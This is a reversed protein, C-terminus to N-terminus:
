RTNTAGVWFVITSVLQVALLVFGWFRIPRKLNASQSLQRSLHHHSRRLTDEINSMQRLIESDRNLEMSNFASSTSSPRSTPLRVMLENCTTTLRALSSVLETCTNALMEETQAKRALTELTELHTDTWQILEEQFTHFLAQWDNPSDEILCQLQGLAIMILFLEDRPDIGLRVVLELVRAKVDDPRGALVRDLLDQGHKGNGNFATLPTSM